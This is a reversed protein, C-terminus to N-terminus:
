ASVRVVPSSAHLAHVPTRLLHPALISALRDANTAHLIAFHDCPMSATVITGGIVDRWGLLPDVDAVGIMAMRIDARILLIDGDYFPPRYREWADIVPAIARELSAVVGPPITAAEAHDGYLPIDPSPDAAVFRRLRLVRAALYGLMEPAPLRRAHRLHESVRRHFPQLLPYDPGNCDLLALLAVEEGARRLQRAIELGINGGLSYGAIQYPGSAQVHRIDTIMRAAIDALELPKDPPVGDGFAYLDLVYVPQEPGLRRALADFVILEGGAGPVFFLPPRAGGRQVPIVTSAARPCADLLFRALQRVTPAEFLTAVRLPVGHIREIEAVVRVAKISHGGLAFFDDDPGIPAMALVQQWIAQLSREIPDTLPAEMADDTVSAAPAPLAARDLKGNATLPLQELECITSPIMYAPLSQRLADRVEAIRVPGDGVVYAVLQHDDSSDAQVSVAAQRIAPCRLLATEIEALEIRYGRLKVQSDVRGLYEIAGDDRYRAMDGTRYLREGTRFPDAVFRVATREPLNCYGDALGLGGIYLEGTVGIPLLAGHRDLIRAVANAVPTGIPLTTTASLHTPVEYSTADVATETPGYFNGLRLHPLRRRVAAALVGDLAEGGSVLYRLTHCAAFDALAAVVRLASPVLQLLTVGEHRIVDPLATLDRHVLPPALVITAGCVLPAFIEALSADFGISAYLLMRDSGTMALRDTFWLAHNCLARHPVLVGKPRGTSGSTYMVYALDAPAGGVAVAPGAATADLACCHITVGLGDLMAGIRRELRDSTLVTRCASDTVKFRMRDRPLEPDLPLFAAGAKHVALLAVILEFSREMAVGVIMTSTAGMALLTGALANAQQDLQRYTLTQGGSAVAIAHPTAAAQREIILHMRQPGSRAVDTQNWEDLQRTREELSVIDIRSVAAGPQAVAGTVLRRLANGFRAVAAPDFRSADFDIAGRLQTGDPWLSLRFTNADAPELPVGVDLTLGDFRETYEQRSTLALGIDDILATVSRDDGLAITVLASSPGSRRDDCLAAVSRASLAITAATENEYRAVLAAVCAVLVAATPEVVSAQGVAATSDVVIWEHRRLDIGDGPTRARLASLQRAHVADAHLTM